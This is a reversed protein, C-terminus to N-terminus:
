GKKRYALGMRQMFDVVKDYETIYQQGKKTLEPSSEGQIFGLERLESLYAKLRDFPVNAKQQVRTLVIKDMKTESRIACLVDCYIKM